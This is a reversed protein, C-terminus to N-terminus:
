SQGVMIEYRARLAAAHAPRPGAWTDFLAAYTVAHLRPAPDDGLRALLEAVEERHVRVEPLTEGDDPEWFLLM